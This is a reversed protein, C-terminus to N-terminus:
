ARIPPAPWTLWKPLEVKSPVLFTKFRTDFGTREDGQAIIWSLNTARIQELGPDRQGDPLQELESKAHQWATVRQCIEGLFKGMDDDFLFKAELTRLRYLQIDNEAIREERFGRALFERTAKYVEFRMDFLRYFVDHELRQQAIVMQRGAIWLGGLAVLALVLGNLAVLVSSIVM